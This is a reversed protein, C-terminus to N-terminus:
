KIKIYLMNFVQRSKQALTLLLFIITFLYKYLVLPPGCTTDSIIVGILASIRLRTFETVISPLLCTGTGVELKVKSSM